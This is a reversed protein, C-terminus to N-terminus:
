PKTEKDRQAVFRKVASVHRCCRSMAQLPGSCRTCSGYGDKHWWVTVNGNFWEVKLVEM